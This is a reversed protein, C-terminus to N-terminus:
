HSQGGIELEYRVRAKTSKFGASEYLSLATTTNDSEVSLGVTSFGMGQFTHICHSLLAKGLGIGQIAPLVAMTNIYGIKNTGGGKSSENEQSRGSEPNSVDERIKSNAFAVVEGNPAVVVPNLAPQYSPAVMEYRVGEATLLSPERRWGFAQNYIDAIQEADAPMSPRSLYGQPWDVEAILPGSTRKMGTVRSYTQFGCKELIHIEDTMEAPAIRNLTVVIGETVVTDTLHQILHQYLRRGVGNRRHEPDVEGYCFVQLRKPNPTGVFCGRIDGVIQGDNVAVFANERGREGPEDLDRHLDDVTIRSGCRNMIAVVEPGDTSEYRRINM